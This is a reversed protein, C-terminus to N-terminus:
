AEAFRNMAAAEALYDLEGRVADGLATLAAADLSRGVESGALKRLFGGDDLDARLREAETRPAAAARMADNAM